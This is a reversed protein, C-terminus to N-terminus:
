AGSRRPACCCTSTSSASRSGARRRRRQRRGAHSGITGAEGVGKAGLPNVPTPTVTRDLEFVPLQEATPMAYDMLTGTLLQGDRRLRGGRVAGPRHGPRHRRPGPRRRADPQDRQRLRRRRRLAEARGQGHRADVEVVAIHAGFPFTFNPPEFYSTAELGPETDPPLNVANWAAAPSRPLSMGKSRTARRRLRARRGRLRHRRAIAELMHAAFKKAKEKVKDVSMM